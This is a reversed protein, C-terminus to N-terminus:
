EIIVSHVLLAPFIGDKAAARPVETQLILWGFLSGFCAIISLASVVASEVGLVGWLAISAARM